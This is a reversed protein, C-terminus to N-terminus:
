LVPTVQDREWVGCAVYCLLYRTENGSGVHGVMLRPILSCPAHIYRTQAGVKSYSTAMRRLAKLYSQVRSDNVRALRQGAAEDEAALLQLLQSPLLFCYPSEGTREFAATNGAVGEFHLSVVQELHPYGLKLTVRSGRGEGGEGEKRTTALARKIEQVVADHTAKVTDMAEVGLISCGAVVGARESM